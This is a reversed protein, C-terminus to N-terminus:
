SSQAAKQSKEIARKLKTRRMAKARDTKGVLDKRSKYPMTFSRRIMDAARQDVEADTYGPEKKM